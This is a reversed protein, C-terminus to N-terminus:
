LDLKFSLWSLTFLNNLCLIFIFICGHADLFRCYACVTWTIHFNFELESSYQVGGPLQCLCFETRKLRLPCVLRHLACEVHSDDLILWFILSLCSGARDEHVWVREGRIGFLFLKQDLVVQLQQIRLHSNINCPVVNRAMGRTKLSEAASKGNVDMWCDGSGRVHRM